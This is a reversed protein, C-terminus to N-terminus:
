AEGTGGDISGFRWSSATKGPKYVVPRDDGVQPEPAGDSLTLTGYVETPATHEGVIMGSFTFYSNGNKDAAGRGGVGTITLTGEEYGSGAGVPGTMGVGRRRAVIMALTAAILLIFVITIWTPM